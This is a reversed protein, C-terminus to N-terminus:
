RSHSLQNLIKQLLSMLRAAPKRHGKECSAL